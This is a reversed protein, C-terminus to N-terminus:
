SIYDADTFVVIARTNQEHRCADMVNSVVKFGAREIDKVNVAASMSNKVIKFSIIESLLRDLFIIQAKLDKALSMITEISLCDGSKSEFVRKVDQFKGTIAM